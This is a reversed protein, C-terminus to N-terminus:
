LQIVGKKQRRWATSESIGERAAYAKVRATLSESDSEVPTEGVTVASDVVTEVPAEYVPQPPAAPRALSLAPRPQWRALLRRLLPTSDSVAVPKIALALAIVRSEIKALIFILLPIASNAILWSLWAVRGATDTDVGQATLLEIPASYGRLYGALLNALAQVVLVTVLGAIVSVRISRDLKVLADSVILAVAGVEIVTAASVGLDLPSVGLAHALTGPTESEYLSLLWSTRDLSYGLLLLLAAGIVLAIGVYITRTM